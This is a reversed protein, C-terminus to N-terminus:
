RKVWLEEPMQFLPKVWGPCRGRAFVCLGTVPTEPGLEAFVQASFREMSGGTTVVDEVILVIAANPDCYPKLAEAFPLGGRPVGRVDRFKCTGLLQLAIRALGAWDEPTLADCELKWASKAGGRLTFDGSRFLTTM